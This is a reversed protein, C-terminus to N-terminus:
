VWDFTLGAFAVLGMRIMRGLFVSVLFLWLPVGLAGALLGAVDFAPNPPASIAFLVIAARWPQRMQREIWSSARSEKVVRHGSRGVFYAVSEGIASGAAAAVIVGWVNLAQALRAIVPYYPVPVIVTANAFAAVVFAGVYGLRGLHSIVEPPLLFYVVVNLVLAVFGILLPLLWRRWRKRTVKQSPGSTSSYSGIISKGGTLSYRRFFYPRKEASYNGKSSPIFHAAPFLFPTEERDRPIAIQVSSTTQSM